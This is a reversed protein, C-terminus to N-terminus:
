LGLGLRCHAGTFEDADFHGFMREWLWPPWRTSLHEVVGPGLTLEDWWSDDNECIGYMEWYEAVSQESVSLDDQRRRVKCVSKAEDRRGWYGSKAAQNKAGAHNTRISM